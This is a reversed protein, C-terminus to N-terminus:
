PIRGNGTPDSRLGAQIVMLSGRSRLRKNFLLDPPSQHVVNTKSFGLKEMTGPRFNELVIDASEILRNVIQAADPHKLDICISRKNRNISMFYTSQGDLFPPGFRRTDDGGDPREIKIVDAGMDGLCMSCFPGALVRSFDLVKLGQLPRHKGDHSCNNNM